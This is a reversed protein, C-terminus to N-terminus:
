MNYVLRSFLGWILRYHFYGNVSLCLMLVRSTGTKDAHHVLKVLNYESSVRFDCRNHNSDARHM